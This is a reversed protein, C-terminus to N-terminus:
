TLMLNGKGDIITHLKFGFFWGKTTKGLAAFNRFVKNSRIRKPHCVALPTSDVFAIGRHKKSLLCYLLVGLLHLVRPMLAIFREYTPLYPFEPKYLLLYSQYFYKFNRCPAHQFLLIITMIESDSLRCIRTPLRTSHGPLQYTKMEEKLAVDFDDIWCFLFTFEKKM